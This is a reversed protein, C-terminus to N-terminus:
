TAEAANIAREFWAMVEVHTHEDNYTALAHGRRQDPQPLAKMLANCIADREDFNPTSAFIAGLTCHRDFGHFGGAHYSGKCWKNPSDILAKAAILDEKLGM